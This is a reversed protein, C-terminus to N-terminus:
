RIIRSRIAKAVAESKSHVQMKEYISRMHFRVTNITVGLQVGATEYNHGEALLKLLRVEHPTLSGGAYEAPRGDRFMTIVRRAVAPSMPAGGDLAERLSELLRAPPTEKLLYGCAGACLADLIRKDDDYVTLMVVSLDQSRKKLLPIGDIGSMGPLGIDLLVVDPAQSGIAPLAEEVSGFAGTCQYGSTGDILVRLGERIRFQDEVIAM